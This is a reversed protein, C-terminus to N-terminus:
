RGERVVVGAWVIGPVVASRDESTAPGSYYSGVVFARRKSCYLQCLDLQPCGTRSSVDASSVERKREQSLQRSGEEGTRQDSGLGGPGARVRDATCSLPRASAGEATLVFQACRARQTIMLATRSLSLVPPPSPGRLVALRRTMNGTSITLWRRSRYAEKRYNWSVASLSIGVNLSLTEDDVEAATLDVARSRARQARKLPVTRIEFEPVPPRM